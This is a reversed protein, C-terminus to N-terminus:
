PTVETQGDCFLASLTLWGRVCVQAVTLGHFIVVTFFSDLLLIRDAAISQVGIVPPSHGGDALRLLPAM